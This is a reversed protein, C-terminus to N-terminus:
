LALVLRQGSKRLTVSSASIEEIVFGNVTEGEGYVDGDIVAASHEGDAIIASLAFAPGTKGRRQISGESPHGTGKVFPDRGWDSHLLTGIRQEGAFTSEAAIEVGGGPEVRDPNKKVKSQRALSSAIGLVVIALFVLTLKRNAKLDMDFGM